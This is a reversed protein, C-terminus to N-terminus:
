SKTQAKNEIYKRRISERRRNTVLLGFLIFALGLGMAVLGAIAIHMIGESFGLTYLETIYLTALVIGFSILIGGCQAFFHNLTQLDILELEFEKDNDL